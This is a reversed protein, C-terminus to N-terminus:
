SLLDKLRKPSVPIKGREFSLNDRQLPKTADIILKSGREDVARPDLSSSRVNELILPNTKSFLANLIIANEVQTSNTIDVDNDTIIISKVSSHASIVADVIKKIDGEGKKDIAVIAKLWGFGGPSLFVNRVAVGSNKIEQYIFPVKPLGMLFIHDKAAPLLAHFIFDKKAMVSDIEFLPQKRQIDYKGTIDAFPGEDVDKDCLLKGRIIIESEPLGHYVELEGGTLAAAFNLEFQDAPISTAASIQVAPSLGICISLPLDEGHAKADTFLDYLHRRVIRMVLQKEDLILIRHVSANKRKGREAIVAGSTIYPGADNQYHTLVPLDTIKISHLDKAAGTEILRGPNNQADILKPIWEAFSKLGISQCLLSPSSYINGVINLKKFLVPQGDLENLVAAIEFKPSIERNVERFKLTQLFERFLLFYTM